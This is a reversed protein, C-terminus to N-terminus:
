QKDIEDKVMNVIDQSECTSRRLFHQLNEKYKPYDNCYEFYIKLWKKTWECNTSHLLLIYINSRIDKDQLNLENAVFLKDLNMQNEDDYQEQLSAIMTRSPIRFWQDKLMINSLKLKGIEYNSNKGTKIYDCQICKGIFYDFDLDTIYPKSYRRSPNNAPTVYKLAPSILKECVETQNNKILQDIEEKLKKKSKSGTKFELDIIYSEFNDKNLIENRTYNQYKKLSDAFNYNEIQGTKIREKIFWPVNVEKPEM